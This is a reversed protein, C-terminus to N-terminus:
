FRYTVDFQLRKLSDEKPSSATVLPRGILGVFGLQISNLAQYFIEVRHQTVNTGQRMESFNFVGLVAERELFIRTYNFDWDGKERSRGFDAELWYGRRQHPDCPANFSLTTGAPPTLINGRNACARTNQVFDGLIMVPWRESNTKIDFRAIADLLAFKSAFQANTITGAANKFTGTSNQTANSNLRLLGTLPSAATTTASAFAAADADHWNYFGGDMSLRLRSSLEWETQLQGGYVMSQVISKNTASANATEAFPLEFGVLAVRKLLPTSELKFDLKQAIGEPNLDNDWTLETRYWPYAFKGGTLTLPKFFGPNYNIFARDIFLPKRTFFQNAGQMLSIPNNVDGSALSFGGSIDDNLKANVNFRLRYRLRNRVQSQDSPGGFFPEDRLKFDGSFSFPGINKLRSEISKQQSATASQVSGPEQSNTARSEVSVTDSPAADATAVAGKAGTRELRLESELAAIRGQQERLETRQTELEEKLQQLEIEMASSPRAAAAPRAAKEPPQGAKASKGAGDGASVPACVVAGLFAIALWKLCM